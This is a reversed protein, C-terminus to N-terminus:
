MRRDILLHSTNTKLVRSTFDGTYTAIDDTIDIVTIESPCGDSRAPLNLEYEGSRLEPLNDCLDDLWVWHNDGAGGMWVELQASPVGKLARHIQKQSLMNRQSRKKKSM